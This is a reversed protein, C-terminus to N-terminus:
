LFQQLANIIEAINIGCGKYRQFKECAKRATLKCPKLLLSAMGEESLFRSSQFSFICFSDLWTLPSFSFFHLPIFPRIASSAIRWCGPHARNVIAISCIQVVVFIDFLIVFRGAAIDSNTLPSFYNADRFNKVIKFHRAGYLYALSFLFSLFQPFSVEHRWTM